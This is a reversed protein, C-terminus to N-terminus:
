RRRRRIAKRLLPFLGLGVLAFFMTVTVWTFLEVLPSSEVVELTFDASAPGLGSDVEVTFSWEGPTEVTASADYYILDTPRNEAEVPGAAAPPDGPGSGTLTVAADVVPSQAAVDTLTVSLHLVGVRPPTPITGLAIEYPGVTQRQFEIIRGNARAESPAALAAVLLALVLAALSKRRGIGAGLPFISIPAGEGGKSERKRPFSPLTSSKEQPRAPRALGARGRGGARLTLTEVPDARAM